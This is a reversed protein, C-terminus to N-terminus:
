PTWGNALRDRLYQLITPGDEKSRAASGVPRELEAGELSRALEKSSANVVDNVQPLRQEPEDVMVSGSRGGLWLARGLWTCGNRLVTRGVTRGVMGSVAPIGVMAVEAAGVAVVPTAMTSVALKDLDKTRGTQVATPGSAYDTSIEIGTWGGTSTTWQFMQETPINALHMDHSASVVDPTNIGGSVNKRHRSTGHRHYNVDFADHPTTVRDVPNWGTGFTTTSAVNTLDSGYGTVGTPADAVSSLICDNTTIPDEADKLTADTGTSTRTQRKVPM